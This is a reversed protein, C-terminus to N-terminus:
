GLTRGLSTLIKEAMKKGIGECSTLEELSATAIDLINVFKDALEEAKTEGIGLQYASSLFLLSKMFRFQARDAENMNRETRISIKPKIVRQLTKHEEPPKQENRYLTVLLRATETANITWYTHIGAVALRHVWAYVVAIPTSFQSGHSLVLRTDRDKDTLADIKYTYTSNFSPSPIRTSVVDYQPTRAIPDHRLQHWTFKGSKISYMQKDTLVALPMPSILGEVIQLNYDANHYYDRIQDEAEDINGVLEGAQKRSFQFTKGESNSFFYDSMKNRNLPSVAVITSQRMLTTIDEPEHEDVLIM